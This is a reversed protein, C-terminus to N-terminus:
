CHMLSQFYVWLKQLDLLCSGEEKEEESKKTEDEKDEMKVDISEEEKISTERGEAEQKVDSKAKEKDASQSDQILKAIDHSRTLTKDILSVLKCILEKSKCVRKSIEEEMGKTTRDSLKELFAVTTDSMVVFCLCLSCNSKFTGVEKLM